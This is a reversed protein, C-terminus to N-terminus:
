EKRLSRAIISSGIVFGLLIALGIIISNMLPNTGVWSNASVQALSKQEADKPSVEPIVAAAESEPANEEEKISSEEKPEKKIREPTRKLTQEAVWGDPDNDFNVNWFWFSQGGINARVPGGVIVGFVGKTQQGIQRGGASQRVNALNKVEVYDNLSFTPPAVASSPPPAEPPTPPPPSSSSSVSMPPPPPPAPSASGVRFGVEAAGIVCNEYSQHIYDANVDIVVDYAGDNLPSKWILTRPIVADTPTKLSEIGSSVDSLLDGDGWNKDPTIFIRIADAASAAVPCTGELYISDGRGFQVTRVGDQNTLFIASESAWVPLAFMLSFAIFPLIKMHKISRKRQDETM